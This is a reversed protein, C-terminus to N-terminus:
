CHPEWSNARVTASEDLDVHTLLSHGAVSNDNLLDILNNTADFNFEMLTKLKTSLCVVEDWRDPNGPYLIDGWSM